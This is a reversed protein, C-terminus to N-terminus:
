RGDVKGLQGHGHCGGGQGDVEVFDRQHAVGAVEADGADGARGREAQLGPCYLLALDIGEFLEFEQVIENEIASINM